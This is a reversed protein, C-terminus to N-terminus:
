DHEAPGPLVAIIRLPGGSGGRIKMPLAVVDFGTEPLGDMSAVNEFAPINKEFLIRHAMFDTSPGHDISPTDLGIAHIVREEVLWRAAEPDLGPFHLKAVAAPGREATGMYRERDPWHRAFGTRLLVIAGDPILGNRAEWAQLDAVSVLYDRDAEASDQVDVLVAPGALRQLPIEETHWAGDAFHVPADLHTGGHEATRLTNAEYHYGGETEGRFDIELEFGDATPWYVTDADFAHTLDVLQRGIFASREGSALAATALAATALAPLLLCLLASAKM